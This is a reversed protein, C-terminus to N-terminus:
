LYDKSYEKQVCYDLRSQVILCTRIFRVEIRGKFTVKKTEGIKLTFSKQVYRTYEMVARNHVVREDIIIFTFVPDVSTNRFSIENSKLTIDLYPNDIHKGSCGALLLVIILKKM